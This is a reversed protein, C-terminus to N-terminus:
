PRRGLFAVLQQTPTATQPVTVPAGFGAFSRVDDDVFGQAFDLAARAVDDPVESDQGSSRAIDWSHTTTDSLNIGFAIAAPMPGAGVDMEGDLGRARWAAITRDAETRFQAGPDGGLPYDGPNRPELGQAALGMSSVVGVTHSLLERLTWDTCPTPADLQDPRVAAVVRATHDFSEALTDIPDV